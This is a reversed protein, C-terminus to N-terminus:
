CCHDNPNVGLPKLGIKNTSRSRHPLAAHRPPALLRSPDRRPLAPRLSAPVRSVSCHSARRQPKVLKVVFPQQHHPAPKITVPPRHLQSSSPHPASRLKASRLKAIRPPATCHLPPKVLKVAFPQRHHPGTRSRPVPLRPTLPACSHLATFQM